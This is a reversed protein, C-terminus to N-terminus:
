LIPIHPYPETSDRIDQPLFPINLGNRITQNTVYYSTNTYHIQNFGIARPRLDLNRYKEGSTFRTISAWIQKRLTQLSYQM